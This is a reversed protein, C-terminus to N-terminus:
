IGLLHNDGVLFSHIAFILFLVGGILSIVRESIKAALLRGGVVAVATCISHGFVGGLTVGVANQTTALAITAFQSRDGWEALFTMAFVQLWTRSVWRQLFALYASPHPKEKLM